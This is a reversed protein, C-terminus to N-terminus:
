AKDKDPTEEQTSEAEDSSETETVADAGADAQTEPEPEPAPEPVSATTEAVPEAEEPAAKADESAAKADESAAEADPAPEAEATEPAAEAEPAETEPAADLAAEAAAAEPSAETAPAEAAEETEPTGLAAEAAAADASTEAAPPAKEVEDQDVGIMSLGIKREGSDVKLIRVNVNDDVNVVEEPRHIKRDSIESIHLLGELGERLEVFVGFNTIKTIKGAAIDGTHYLDPIEELWPDNQLQKIGLAIRKKDPEVTLVVAKVREGKKLVENPHNVKKTWSIDSV